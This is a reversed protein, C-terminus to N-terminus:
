ICKHNIYYQCSKCRGNKNTKQIDQNKQEEIGGNRNEKANFLYKM